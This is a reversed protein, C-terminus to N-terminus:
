SAVSVGSSYPGGISKLDGDTIGTNSLDLWHLSSPALVELCLFDRELLKKELEYYGLRYRYKWLGWPFNPQRDHVVLQGGSNEIASLARNLRADRSLKLGLWVSLVTMVLLLARLSFRYRRAMFTFAIACTLVGFIAASPGFAMALMVLLLAVSFSIVCYLFYHRPSDRTPSHQEQTIDTRSPM